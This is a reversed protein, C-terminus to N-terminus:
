PARPELRVTGKKKKKKKHSHGLALCRLARATSNFGLFAHIIHATAMIQSFHQQLRRLVIILIHKEPIATRQNM